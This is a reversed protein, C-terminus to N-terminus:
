VGTEPLRDDQQLGEEYSERFIFEGAELLNVPRLESAGRRALLVARPEEAMSSNGLDRSFLEHEEHSPEPKGVPFLGRLFGTEKSMPELALVVRSPVLHMRVKPHAALPGNARFRGASGLAGIASRVDSFGDTEGDALANVSASAM